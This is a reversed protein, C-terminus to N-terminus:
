ANTAPKFVIDYQSTLFWFISAIWVINWNFYHFLPLNLNNEDGLIFLTSLCSYFLFGKSPRLAGLSIPLAFYQIAIGTTFTLFFLIGLLCQNIIDKGRSFFSFLFLGLIFVYKLLPASCLGSVGYPEVQSRYLFVNKVIAGHGESWYPIFLLLFGFVSVMLLMIKMRDRKFIFNLCIIVEFFVIHKIFMGLTTFGWLLAKGLAPSDRLKFYGYIGVIVMLIAFNEFQGHFGTLIYSVPNLYFFLATGTTSLKEHRAILILFFLILLDIGTLFSKVIFYFSFFSFCSHAKGLFGLTIFWIPSCNYDTEAYVNGGRSFIGSIAGWQQTDYNGCCAYALFLRIATGNLVILFLVWFLGLGTPEKTEKHAACVFSLWASVFVMFLALLGASLINVEDIFDQLSYKKLLYNVGKGGTYHQLVRHGLYTNSFENLFKPLAENNCVKGIIQTNAFIGVCLVIFAIVLATILRNTNKIM